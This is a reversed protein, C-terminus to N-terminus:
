QCKVGDVGWTEPDMQAVDVVIRRRVKVAGVGLEVRVRGKDIITATSQLLKGGGCLAVGDACAKPTAASECAKAEKLMAEAFTPTAFAIFTRKIEKDQDQVYFGRVTEIAKAKIADEDVRPPPAGGGVARAAANIDTVAVIPILVAAKAMLIALRDLTPTYSDKPTLAQM